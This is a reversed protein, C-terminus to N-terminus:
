GKIKIPIGCVIREVSEARQALLCGIKGVEERWLRESKELPIIGNGIENMVIVVNPSEELIRLTAEIPDQGKELFAKIILHFNNICKIYSSEFCYNYEDAIEKKSIGYENVAYDLKGQYAGGIIMRM